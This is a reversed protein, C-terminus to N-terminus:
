AKVQRLYISVPDLVRGEYQGKYPHLRSNHMLTAVEADFDDVGIADALPQLDLNTTDALPQLSLKTTEALPKVDLTTTEALPQLNLKTTNALPRVGM